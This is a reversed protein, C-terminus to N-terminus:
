KNKLAFNYADKVMDDIEYISHWGLKTNAYSPDAYCSAVDGERRPAIKYPVKINNCKEFSQRTLGSLSLNDDRRHFVTM